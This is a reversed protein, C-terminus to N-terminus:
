GDSLSAEDSASEGTAAVELSADPENPLEIGPRAHSRPASRDRARSTACISGGERGRGRRARRATPRAPALLVRRWDGDVKEFVRVTRERADPIPLDLLGAVLAEVCAKPGRLVVADTREVTVVAAEEAAPRALVADVLAAGMPVRWVADLDDLSAAYSTM